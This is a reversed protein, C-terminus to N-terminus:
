AKLKGDVVLNQEYKRNGRRSYMAVSSNLYLMMIELRCPFLYPKLLQVPSSKCLTFILLDHLIFIRNYLKRLICNLVYWVNFGYIFNDM